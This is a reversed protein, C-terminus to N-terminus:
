DKIFENIIEWIIKNCRPIAVVEAPKDMTACIVFPVDLEKNRDIDITILQTDPLLRVFRKAFENNDEYMVKIAEMLDILKERGVKYEKVGKDLSMKKFVIFENNERM